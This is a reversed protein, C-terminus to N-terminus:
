QRVHNPREQKIQRFSEEFESNKHIKTHCSCCITILNTDVWALDPRDKRHEIHHVYLVSGYLAEHEEGTVGCCQCVNLDRGRIESAKDKWSVSKVFNDNSPHFDGRLSILYCGSSCFDSKSMSTKKYERGCQRCENRLNPNHKWHNEGSTAEICASMRERVPIVFKRLRKCVTATSCSYLRAIYTSSRRQNIYLDELEEKTIETFNM